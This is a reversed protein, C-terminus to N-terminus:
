TVYIALLSGCLGPKMEAIGGIGEDSQL